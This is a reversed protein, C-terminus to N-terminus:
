AFQGYGQQAHTAQGLADPKGLKTFDGGVQLGGGSTTLAFVGLPSNAGPAWPDLSGTSADVALIKHRTLQSGTCHYGTIGGPAVGTPCVNDFHGGIYVSGNLVSIAQIGGDTQVSWGKAGTALSASAANGGSGNGAMYMTTADATLDYVPYGPHFLRSQVLATSASLSVLHKQKTDGNVSVFDGGAYISAGSASALLARVPASLSPHWAADLSGNTDVSAANARAVGNITTFTSGLYVRSGTVAIAFVKNNASPAWKTLVGTASSFAAVKLRSQGSVQSFLGGVYITSGDPSAALAYAEKNAGPNWPLLQGTARDVAALHNRAVEGTGRAAGYPRLSTFSGALYITNGVPLLAAARGNAQYTQGVTLPLSSSAGALTTSLM